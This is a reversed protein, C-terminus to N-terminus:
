LSFIIRAAATPACFAPEPTFSSRPVGQYRRRLASAHHKNFLVEPYHWPYLIFCLEAAQHDTVWNLAAEHWSDTVAEGWGLEAM